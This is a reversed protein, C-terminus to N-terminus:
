ALRGVGMDRGADADREKGVVRRITLRKEGVGVGREVAGLGFAAVGTTEELCPHAGLDPFAPHELVIQPM